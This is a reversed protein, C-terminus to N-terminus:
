RCGPDAASGLQQAGRVQKSAMDLVIPDSSFLRPTLNHCLQCVAALLLSGVPAVVLLAARTTQRALDPRNAGLANGSRAAAAVGVAQLNQWLM